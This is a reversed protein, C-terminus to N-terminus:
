GQDQITEHAASFGGDALLQSGFKIQRQDVKVVLDFFGASPRDRLDEGFGAFRSEAVHFALLQRTDEFILM